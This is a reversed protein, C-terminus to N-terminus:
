LSAVASPGCIRKEPSINMRREITNSDAPRVNSNAPTADAWFLVGWLIIRNM